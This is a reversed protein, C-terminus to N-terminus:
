IVFTPLSPRVPNQELYIMRRVIVYREVIAPCADTKVPFTGEFESTMFSLISFIGCLVAHITRYCIRTSLLYSCLQTGQSSLSAFRTELSLSFM